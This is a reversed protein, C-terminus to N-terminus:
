KDFIDGTPNEILKLIKKEGVECASVKASRYRQMEDTGYYQAADRGADFAEVIITRIEIQQQPTFTTM